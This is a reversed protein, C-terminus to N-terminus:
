MVIDATKPIRYLELNQINCWLIKLYQLTHYSVKKNGLRINEEDGRQAYNRSPYFIYLQTLPM